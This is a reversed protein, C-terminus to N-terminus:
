VYNVTIVILLKRTYIETRGPAYCFPVSPQMSKPVEFWWLHTVANTRTSVWLSWFVCYRQLACVSHEWRYFTPSSSLILIEPYFESTEKPAQLLLSQLKIVKATSGKQSFKATMKKFYWLQKHIRDNPQPPVVRPSLQSKSSSLLVRLCKPLSYHHQYHRCGRRPTHSFSLKFCPPPLLFMETM